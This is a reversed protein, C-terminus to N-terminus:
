GVSVLTVVTVPGEYPCRECRGGTRTGVLSGAKLYCVSCLAMYRELPGPPKIIELAAILTQADVAPRAVQARFHRGGM